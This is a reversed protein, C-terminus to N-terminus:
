IGVIRKEVQEMQTRDCALQKLLHFVGWYLGEVNIDYSNNGGIVAQHLWTPCVDSSEITEIRHNDLPPDFKRITICYQQKDFIGLSHALPNRILDYLVKTKEERKEGTGWPYYIIMLECFRKRRDGRRKGGNVPTYMMVSIGSILNCLTSAAAFNCGADLGLSGIPLKLMTRIDNFQMDLHNRVFGHVLPFSRFEVFESPRM